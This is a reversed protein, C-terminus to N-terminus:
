YAARATRKIEDRKNFGGPHYFTGLRMIWTDLNEVSFSFVAIRVSVFRETYDRSVIPLRLHALVSDHPKQVAGLQQSRFLM